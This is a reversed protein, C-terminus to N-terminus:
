CGKGRKRKGTADAELMATPTGLCGRQQRKFWKLFEPILPANIKSKYGWRDVILGHLREPLRRGEGGWYAFDTSILVRSAQRIEEKANPTNYDEWRDKFRRNLLYRDHELTETVRMAYVVRNGLEKKGLGIVYDDERVHPRMPYKCYALTCIGNFPNPAYGTDHDVIYSFLM